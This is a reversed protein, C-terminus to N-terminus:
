AESGEAEPQYIIDEVLLIRHGAPGEVQVMDGIKHGLLATGLPALVSLRGASLDSESPYVLTYIETRDAALDKIRVTSHMTVVDGPVCAPEVICARAIAQELADAFIAWRVSLSDQTLEDMLRDRDPRTIVLPPQM